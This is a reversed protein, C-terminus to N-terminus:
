QATPFWRNRVPFLYQDTLHNLFRRAQDFRTALDGLLRGLGAVPTREAAARYWRPGLWELLGTAGREGALQELDALTPRSGAADPLSRLLRELEIPHVARATTHDPFVGTLFLALDGLRRYIGPRDSEPVADLTAALRPADLESFRQRRWRGRRQIWVPGSMVRTYSALHEVIFYRRAPDVGFERLQGADFVPVRLRPTVREEVFTTRGLEDVTRHVAVAFVLFPSAHVLLEDHVDAGLVLDFAASSGLAEEVLEPHSRLYASADEAPPSDVVPGLLSLDAETLHELYATGSNM